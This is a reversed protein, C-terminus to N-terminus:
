KRSSIIRLVYAEYIPPVYPQIEELVARNHWDAARQFIQAAANATLYLHTIKDSYSTDDQRHLIYSRKTILHIM